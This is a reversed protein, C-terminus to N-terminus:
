SANNRRDGTAYSNQRRKCDFHHPNRGEALQGDFVPRRSNTATIVIDAGELAEEPSSAANIEIALERSMKEAFARRRVETPSFVKVQTLTRVAAAAKLQTEAHVRSGFVAVRSSNKRALYKAGIGGASRNQIRQYFL